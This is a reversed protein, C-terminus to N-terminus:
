TPKKPPRGRGKKPQEPAKSKPRGPARGRSTADIDTLLPLAYGFTTDFNDSAAYEKANPQKALKAWVRNKPIPSDKPLEVPWVGGRSKVDRRLANSEGSLPKREVAIYRLIHLSAALEPDKELSQARYQDEVAQYIVEPKAGLKEEYIKSLLLSPLIADLARVLRMILRPHYREATSVFAIGLLLYFDRFEGPYGKIMATLLALLQGGRSRQYDAPVIFMRGFMEEYDDSQAASKSRYIDGLMQKAREPEANVARMDGLSDLDKFDSDTLWRVPKYPFLASHELYARVADAYSQGSLTRERVEGTDADIDLELFKLKVREVDDRLLNEIRTYLNRMWGRTDPTRLVCMLLAALRNGLSTSDGRSLAVSAYRAQTRIRQTRADLDIEAPLVYASNLTTVRSTLDDISDTLAMAPLTNNEIMAKIRSHETYKTDLALIPTPNVSQAYLVFRKALREVFNQASEYGFRVAIGEVYDLGLKPTPVDPAGADTWYEAANWVDVLATGQAIPDSYVSSPLNSSFMWEVLTANNKRAYIEMMANRTDYLLEPSTTDNIRRDSFRVYRLNPQAEQGFQVGAPDFVLLRKGQREAEEEFGSETEKRKESQKPVSINRYIDNVLATPLLETAFRQLLTEYDGPQANVPVVLQPWHEVYGGLVGAQYFRLVISLLREVEGGLSGADEWDARVADVISKEFKGLREFVATETAHKLEDLLAQVWVYSMSVVRLEDFWPELANNSLSLGWKDAYPAISDLREARPPPYGLANLAVDLWQAWRLLYSGGRTQQVADLNDRSLQCTLLAVLWNTNEEIVLASDFPEKSLQRAFIEPYNEDFLRRLAANVADKSELTRISESLKSQSTACLEASDYYDFFSHAADQPADIRRLREYRNDVPERLPVSPVSNMLVDLFTTNNLDYLSLTMPLTDIIQQQQEATLEQFNDLIMQEDLMKEIEPDALQNPPPPPPSSPLPIPEPIQYDGPFFFEQSQELEGWTSMPEQQQQPAFDEDGLLLREQSASLPAPQLPDYQEYIPPIDDLEMWGTDDGDANM